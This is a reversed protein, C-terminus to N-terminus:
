KRTETPQLDCVEVEIHFTTLYGFHSLSKWPSFNGFYCNGPLHTLDSCSGFLRRLVLFTVLFVLVKSRWNAGTSSRQSTALSLSFFIPWTGLLSELILQPVYKPELERRTERTASLSLRFHWGDRRGVGWRASLSCSQSACEHGGVLYKHMIVYILRHRWLVANYSQSYSM